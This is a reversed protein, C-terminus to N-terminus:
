EGVLVVGISNSRPNEEVGTPLIVPSSARDDTERVVTASDRHGADERIPVNANDNVGHTTM